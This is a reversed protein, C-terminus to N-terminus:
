WTRGLGHRACTAGRDQRQWICRAVHSCARSSLRRALVEAGDAQGAVDVLVLDAREGTALLGADDQDLQLEGLAVNEQQIYTGAGPVPSSVSLIRASGRRM